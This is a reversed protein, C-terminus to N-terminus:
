PEKSPFGTSASVILWRIYSRCATQSIYFNIDPICQNRSQLNDRAASVSGNKQYDQQKRAATAQFDAVDLGAQPRNRNPIFFM